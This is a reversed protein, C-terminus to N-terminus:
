TQEAGVFLGSFDKTMQPEADPIDRAKTWTPIEARPRSLGSAVLLRGINQDTIEPVDMDQRTPALDKVILRAAFMSNAFSRETWQAANRHPVSHRGGGILLTPIETRADNRGLRSGIKLYAQKVTGAFVNGLAATARGELNGQEIWHRIIEAGYRHIEAAFVLYGPGEDRGKVLKFVVSDLTLGGIDMLAYLGTRSETSAAFGAIAGSLEPYVEVLPERNADAANAKADSLVTRVVAEDLDCTEAALIGAARCCLRFAEQAGVRELSAAPFGVNIAPIFAFRRALQPRDKRFWGLSQRIMLAVFATMRLIAPDSLDGDEVASLFDVKIQDYLLSGDVPLLHYQGGGGQWLLTRWYYPHHDARLWVPVPVPQAAGSGEYPLRLVVKSSTSGIDIGLVLDTEQLGETSASLLSGGDATLRAAIEELDRASPWNASAGIRLADAPDLADLTARDQQIETLQIATAPSFKSANISAAVPGKRRPASPPLPRGRVGSAPSRETQGIQLVKGQATTEAVTRAGRTQEALMKKPVPSPPPPDSYKRLTPGVAKPTSPKSGGSILQRLYRLGRVALNDVDRM